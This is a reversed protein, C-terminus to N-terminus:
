GRSVTGGPALSITPWVGSGTGALKYPTGPGYTYDEPLAFGMITLKSFILTSSTDVMAFGALGNVNLSTGPQDAIAFFCFRRVCDYSSHPM